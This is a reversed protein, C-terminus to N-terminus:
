TLIRYVLAVYMEPLCLSMQQRVDPIQAPVSSAVGKM